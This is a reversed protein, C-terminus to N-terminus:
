DPLAFEGHRLGNRESFIVERLPSGNPLTRVSSGAVLSGNPMFTMAKQLNSLPKESVSFVSKDDARAPGKCVKM